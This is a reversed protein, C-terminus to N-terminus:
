PAFLATREFHQECYHCWLLGHDDAAHFVPYLKAEVDQRTICAPNPCQGVGRLTHVGRVKVKKRREESIENFTATPVLFAVAARQAPTLFRDELRIIAKVGDTLRSTKLGVHIDSTGGGRWLDINLAALVTPTSAVPLHDIVTGHSIPLFRLRLERKRELAQEAPEDRVVEEQPPDDPPLPGAYRNLLSQELLAMRTPVGFRAQQDMIVQPHGWIEPHIENDAIPQPHMILVQPGLRELVAADVTFRGRVREYDFPNAFRERQVRTVYVFDCGQLADLTDAVVVNNLGRTYWPQLAVEPSSVLVLRVGPLQRLAQVLSHVTRSNKLDGVFGISFNELRGLKHQITLLDLFAQTPHQNSGDGANHVVTRACHYRHLMEVVWRAAGEIATRMVLVATNYGSIMRVGASLSEGKVFSTADVGAITQYRLGLLEIAEAYSQCTRTSPEAFLLTVKDVQPRQGLRHEQFWNVMTSAHEVLQRIQGGTFDAMSLVHRM